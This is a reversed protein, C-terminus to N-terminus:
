GRALAEAQFQRGGSLFDRPPVPLSWSLDNTGPALSRPEGEFLLREPPQDPESTAYLRLIAQLGEPADGPLFCRVNFETVHRELPSGSLLVRDGLENTISIMEGTPHATNDYVVRTEPPPAVQISVPESAAVGAINSVEVYYSGERDPGVGAFGIAPNTAGPVPEDNFFWQYDLPATGVAEVELHLDAGAIVALDSPQTLISPTLLVSLVATESPKEGAANSVMAQYQGAQGALVNTLALVSNTELPLDTGNFRWQFRLPQTGTAAVSFVVSLGNTTVVSQPQTLITPPLNTAQLDAVIRAGWGPSPADEGLPWAERTWGSEGRRWYYAANRGEAPPGHVSLAFEEPAGPELLEVTWTFTDPVAVHPTVTLRRRGPELTLPESQYLLQGPAGGLGTNDYFRLVARPDAAAANTDLSFEFVFEEIQRLSPEGALTVQGGHEGVVPVAALFHTANDYVTRLPNVQTVTLIAPESLVTGAENSVAVRYQGARALTVAEFRLTANTADPLDTGEHRWQYFLPETGVASVTLAVSAGEAISQTQPSALIVPASAQPITTATVQAYFNGPPTQNLNWRRTWQGELLEWYAGGDTGDTSQGVTPPDNFVLAGKEGTEIGEWQVTWILNEPAVVQPALQLTSYGNVTAFVSFFGSDYLLEGPSGNAPDPAYFRVRLRENGSAETTLYYGLLFETILTPGPNGALVIQDGYENTSSRVPGYLATSNDYVVEGRLPSTFGGGALALLFGLLLSPRKM